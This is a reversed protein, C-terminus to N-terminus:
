IKPHVRVRMRRQPNQPDIEEATLFGDSNTDVSTFWDLNELDVNRKNRHHLYRSAEEYDLMNNGDVDAAIVIDIGTVGDINVSRKTQGAWQKYDDWWTIEECNRDRQCSGGCNCCFINCSGSAACSGHIPRTRGQCRCCFSEALGAFVVLFFGLFIIKNM